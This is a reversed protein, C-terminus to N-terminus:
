WRHGPATIERCHALRAAADRHSDIADELELELHVRRDAIRDRIGRLQDLRGYLDIAGTVGGYLDIIAGLGDKIPTAVDHAYTELEHMFAAYEGSNRFVRAPATPATSAFLHHNVIARELGELLAQKIGSTMGEGGVKGPDLAGAASGLAQKGLEKIVDKAVAEGVAARFTASEFLALGLGGSLGGAVFGLDLLVSGPLVLSTITDIQEQLLAENRRCAMLLDNLYRGRASARGVAEAQATCPDVPAEAERSEGAGRGPIAPTPDLAAGRTGSGLAAGGGFLLLGILAVAIGLAGPEAPADAGLEVAGAEPTSTLAECDVVQATEGAAVVWAQLSTVGVALMAPCADESGIFPGGVLRGRYHFVGGGGDPVRFGGDEDPPAVYLWYTNDEVPGGSTAHGDMWVLYQPTHFVIPTPGPSPDATLGSPATLALAALASVLAAGIRTGPGAISPGDTSGAMVPPHHAVDM